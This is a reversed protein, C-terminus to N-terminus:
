PQPRIWVLRFIQRWAQVLASLDKLACSVSDVSVALCEIRDELALAFTEHDSSERVKMFFSQM